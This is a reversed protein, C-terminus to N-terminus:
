CVGAVSCEGREISPIWNAIADSIAANAQNSVFAGIHGANLELERYKCGSGVLKKLAQSEPPPIIHDHKAYINLVPMNLNKLRVPKSNVTFSGDILRNDHYLDILWQKAAEAPHHPRDLLWKEM